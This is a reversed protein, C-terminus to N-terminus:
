RNWEFWSPLNKRETANRSSWFLISDAAEQLTSKLEVQHIMFKPITIAKSPLAGPNPIIDSSEITLIQAMTPGSVTASRFSEWPICVLTSRFGQGSITLWFVQFLGQLLPIRDLWSMAIFKHVIGEQAIRLLPERTAIVRYLKLSFIMLSPVGLLTMYLGADTAPEGKADKMGALFLPGMILCFISFFGSFYTAVFFIWRKAKFQTPYTSEPM